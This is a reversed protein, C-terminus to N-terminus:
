TVGPSTEQCGLMLLVVARWCVLCAEPCSRNDFLWENETFYRFAEVLVRIRWVLKSLLAAKSKTNASGFSSVQIMSLTCM